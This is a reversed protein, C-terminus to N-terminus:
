HAKLIEVAAALREAQGKLASASAATQEVLAANGQTVTDLQTVAENVQGLGVSQEAAAHTIEGILTTVREVQGVIESLASGAETVLRASDDVRTVSDKILARIERAAEASRGALVRVESAVVAFGRGQEGARAAEVAANLALINTQFAIGDIVGIIEAVKRSTQTLNAMTENVRGFVQDGRSAVDRASSAVENAQKASLASQQVTSTIQEMSAATEELSAAQEETRQSMDSNGRELELASLRVAEISANADSVIGVIKANMQNLTKALRRLDPDGSEPFRAGLDGALVRHATAALQDVPGVVDALVKWLTYSSLLAGLVAAGQLAAYAPLSLAERAGYIGLAAVAALLAQLGMAFATRTHLPLERLADVRGRLGTRKLEGGMLRIGKLSGSRMRDYLSTAAQIEDRTPKVRVSLYGVISGGALIPTVNARVWYFGGDKRRNKVIGTWPKGAQITKWMDAFAAKPMDPHRVLNQPQGMVEALSYGTSRLFGDNAYTIYSKPDTRTIIVEREDLVYENAEPQIPM